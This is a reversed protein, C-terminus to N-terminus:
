ARRATVRLRRYDAIWHYGDWLDGRVRDEVTKVVAEVAREPLPQLAAQYFQRLWNRLGEEGGDLPTPRDFLTISQVGFGAKKLKATYDATSPFYFPSVYTGGNETMAAAFAKELRGINGAGGFECVLFGRKRLAAHIGSLLAAHDPIWHFVANSFVADFADKWELRCADMVRFEIGPHNGRARRIMDPSADVGTVDKGMKAIEATLTGTGCGVDLVSKVASTDLHRLLERGYEAVFAHSDDYLEPDWEM